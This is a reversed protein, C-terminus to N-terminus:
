EGRTLRLYQCAYCHGCGACSGVGTSAVAEPESQSFRRMCDELLEREETTFVYRISHDLAARLQFLTLEDGLAADVIPQKDLMALPSQSPLAKPVQQKSTASRTPHDSWSRAYVSDSKVVGAGACVFCRGKQIHMYRAVRGTGLCRRCVCTGERLQRWYVFPSPTDVRRCCIMHSACDGCKEAM